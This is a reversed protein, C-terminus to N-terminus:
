FKMLSLIQSRYWKFHWWCTVVLDLIFMFTAQLEGKLPELNESACSHESIVCRMSKNCLILPLSFLHWFFIIRASITAPRLEATCQSWIYGQVNNGYWLAWCHVSKLYMTVMDCPSLVHCPACGWSFNVRSSLTLKGTMLDRSTFGRHLFPSQNRQLM